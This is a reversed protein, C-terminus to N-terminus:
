ENETTEPPQPKDPAATGFTVGGTAMILQIFGLEEATAPSLDLEARNWAGPRLINSAFLHKKQKLSNEWEELTATSGADFKKGWKVMLIFGNYTVASPNGIILTLKYGDSYPEVSECAVLFFGTATEIKQFGKEAPDIMISKHLYVDKELPSIKELQTIQRQINMQFETNKYYRREIRQELGDIRQQLQRYQPRTIDQQSCGQLSLIGPVILLVLILRIM